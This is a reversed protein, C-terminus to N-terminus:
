EPTVTKFWENVKEVEDISSAGRIVYSGTSYIGVQAQVNALDVFLQGIHPMYEVNAVKNKDRMYDVADVLDVEYSLSSKAVISSVTHELTWLNSLNNEEDLDDMVNVIQKCAHKPEELNKGRTIISSKCISILKDADEHEVRINYPTGSENYKSEAVKEHTQIIKHIPNLAFDVQEGHSDYVYTTVVINSIEM